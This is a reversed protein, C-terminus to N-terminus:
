SVQLNLDGARFTFTDNAILTKPSTLTSHFLMNGGFESDYLAAHTVTGFGAVGAPGFVVDQTTTTSGGSVPSFLCPKRSYGLASVESGSADEMPDSTFLAVFLDQSIQLSGLVSTSVTVKQPSFTSDQGIKLVSAGLNDIYVSTVFGDTNGVTLDSLATLITDVTDGAQAPYTYSIRNVTLVYTDTDDLVSVRVLIPVQYHSKGLATELVRDEMFDSFSTM